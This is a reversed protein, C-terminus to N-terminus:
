DYYLEIRLHHLTVAKSNTLMHVDVCNVERRPQVETIDNIFRWAEFVVSFHLFHHLYLKSM